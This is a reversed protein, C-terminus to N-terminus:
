LNCSSIVLRVVIKFGCGPPILEVLGACENAHHSHQGLTVTDVGAQLVLTDVVDSTPYSLYHLSEDDGLDITQVLVANFLDASTHRCFINLIVSYM